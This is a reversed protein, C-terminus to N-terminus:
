SDLEVLSLAVGLRRTDIAKEFHDSPVFTGSILTVSLEKGFTIRDLDFTASWPTEPSVNDLRGDFLRVSNATVRLRTGGPPTEVVTLSLSRPPQAQNFMLNLEAAGDTWRTRGTTWREIGHLGRSTQRILALPNQDLIAPRLHVVDAATEITFVTVENVGPRFSRPDVVASWRSPAFSWTRTVGVIRGDVAVALDTPTQQTAGAAILQGSIHAPVYPSDAGLEFANLPLEMEVALPASNSVPLADVREGILVRHRGIRFLERAAGAGFRADRQALATAEGAALEAPSHIRLQSPARQRHPVIAVRQRGPTALDVMSRGDLAWPTEIGALELLTPVIDITATQRDDIRGQRQGPAKILLPVPVIAAFNARTLRRRKRGAVFSAGHDATVAVVARDWLGAAELRAVVQGVVRDVYGVQLLHRQHIQTIAWEDDPMTDRKLGVVHGDGSYTQGSPLYDFPPHPLLVHLLHLVPGDTPQIRDLFHEIQSTRDGRGRDKWDSRWDDRDAFLMWNESVPPLGNAWASPLLVHLYLIALDSALARARNALGESRTGCLRAPCIQTVSESVNMEYDAGLLTFLSQPYEPAIPLRGPVPMHGTLISPVALVTYDSVTASHRYWTARAALAAFHPYNAADITRPGDLLSTLPLEDFVILVIPTNANSLAPAAVAVQRQSLMKSVGPRLMFLLPFVLIAPTLYALFLRAPRQRGLTAAAAVGILLALGLALWPDPHLWRSIPPLAIAAVLASCLITHLTHQATPHIRRVLAELLILPTPVAIALALILLAVDLPALGRVALFEPKGGILEFLPQAVAFACLVGLHLADSLFAHPQHM